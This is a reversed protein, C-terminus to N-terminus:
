ISEEDKKVRKKPTNFYPKMSIITEKLVYDWVFKSCPQLLSIIFDKEGFENFHEQLKKNEHKGAKLLILNMKWKSDIDVAKLVLIREPDSKSKVQYIGALEM